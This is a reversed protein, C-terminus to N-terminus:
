SPPTKTIFSLVVDATQLQQEDPTITAQGDGAQAGYDGFGAHNGGEIVVETHDPLFSLAETYRDRNMVSDLSGYVLLAPTEGSVKAPSYAGLLIIGRIEAPHGSAYQAAMSGGLSHGGIYWSEIAPFQKIVRDAANIDLVALNLPMECLVCFVGGESFRQLLPLYAKAEVKGGPYFIFGAQADPDGIAWGGSWKSVDPSASADLATQTAHYYDSSYVLIAIALLLLFGGAALITRKLKNHDGGQDPKSAM